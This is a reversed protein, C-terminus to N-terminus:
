ARSLAIACVAAIKNELLELEQRTSRRADLVHIRLIGAALEASLTGPLLSVTVSMLIQPFGPPLRLPYEIIKPDVPMAPRLARWAVDAGGRVSHAIFFPVFRAAEYWAFRLPSLMAMSVLTAIAVAPAGVLWSAAAGDTLMIWLVSFFVLRFLVTQTFRSDRRKWMAMWAGRHSGCVLAAAALPSIPVNRM